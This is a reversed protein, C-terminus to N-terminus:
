FYVGNSEQGIQAFHSVSTSAPDSVFKFGHGNSLSTVITRPTTATVEITATNQVFTGRMQNVPQNAVDRQLIGSWKMRLSDITGQVQNVTRNVGMISNAVMFADYVCLNQVHLSATGDDLDVQVSGEPVSVVWFVDTPSM